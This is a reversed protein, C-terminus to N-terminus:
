GIVRVGRRDADEARPRPEGQQRDGPERERRAVVVRCRSATASARRAPARQPLVLRGHQAAGGAGLRAAHRGRVARAGDRARRELPYLQELRVIAVDDRGRKRARTSRPRLLGQRHLAARAQGDRPDVADRRPHRAPVRGDRPRRAAVVAEPHRLLSKPTMIVLPKRWPRLVQRRLVHFLQAPTTLNCVQINDEARSSCSGSSARARTSPGRARTATRCSCCSARSATGSTRPRSSSSISSSRRATRSTASSRRGSRRARRPPRPQLRVRLRARRGRSLPSDYVDFRAQDGAGRARAAHVARGDAIDFCCRTATASRAAARTRAPSASRRRRRALSRRSRSRRAPRGLRAARGDDLASAASSSSRCRGEPERPLGAPLTSSRTSCRRPADERPVATPSRPRRGRRPRGHLPAWVGGMANPARRSTARARRTSRRRRAGGRRERSSRTPRSAAHRQGIAVLRQSTSRACADAEQRHARVHAAAHLAARRGRQPRLKRYCYMDIVVDKGFRQRFEIALQTSRPSRRRSGRRERPLGPVSCCARSTPATARRAPTARSRHHLRDPQQRRRPDHRRDHLGRPGALNLTEAVVGQGMFAADGHILLPMVRRASDGRPGAQRPRAGRRGPERVRPPEPQVRALPPRQQGVRRSAIADLLRPPVERRRRRPLARPRKDDFAAFIERVNKGMINALVNLRGRHAM